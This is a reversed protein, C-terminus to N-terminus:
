EIWDGKIKHFYCWIDYSMPIPLGLFLIALSKNFTSSIEKYQKEVSSYQKETMRVEEM